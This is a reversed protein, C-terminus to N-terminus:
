DSTDFTAQCLDYASAAHWRPCDMTLTRRLDTMRVDGGNLLLDAKVFCERRECRTCLITVTSGRWGSLMPVDSFVRQGTGRPKPVDERSPGRQRYVRARPDDVPLLSRDLDIFRAGCQARYERRDCKSRWWPCDHALDALLGDLSQEPGYRAALRALRYAGKRLCLVCEIRIVVWPYDSLKTPRLM